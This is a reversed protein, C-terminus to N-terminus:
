WRRLPDLPDLPPLEYPRKFPADKPWPAAPDYWYWERQETDHRYTQHSRLDLDKKARELTREPIGAGAAAALLDAAKRLGNAM